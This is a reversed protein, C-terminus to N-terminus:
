FRAKCANVLMGVGAVVGDVIRVREGADEGYARICGARVAEEMGAMGACGLCIVTVPSSTNKILRETADSMRKRVEDPPTDHLEVATLGTTEVGAFRAINGSSSGGPGALMEAVAKSLEAKWISGTSVIGFTDDAQVKRLDDTGLLQFSSILSLSTSVSAEFIGTVYRRRINSNSTSGTKRELKKIDEKLMAVLPHASYCAVLFADYKPILPELFPRCHLASNASDDGSNISPVGPVVRGTEEITVSTLAPATFYDFHIDNYNLSNVIPKLADTMHRSTNPNVILISFRPVTSTSTM